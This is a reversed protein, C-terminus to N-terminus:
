RPRVFFIIPSDYPLTFAGTRWEKDFVRHYPLRQITKTKGWKNYWCGNKALKYAHYDEESFRIAVVKFLKAPYTEATYNEVYTWEPFEESLAIISNALATKYDRKRAAQMIVSNETWNGINMGAYVDFAYGICNYEEKDTNRINRVGSKNYPDEPCLWAYRVIM